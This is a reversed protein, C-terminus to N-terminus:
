STLEYIAQTDYCACIVVRDASTLNLGVGGVTTTLLFIFIDKNTNFQNIIGQREDIDSVSGDIRVFNFGLIETIVSQIIDLMKTSQSFILVRHNENKLNVLLEALFALKGSQEVVSGEQLTKQLDLSEVNQLDKSLLRPHDCIKRLIHIASFASMNKKIVEDILDAEKSLFTEYL